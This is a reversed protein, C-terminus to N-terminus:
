GGISNAKATKFPVGLVTEIGQKISPSVSDLSTYGGFVLKEGGDNWIAFYYGKPLGEKAQDLRAVSWTWLNWSPDIKKPNITFNIDIAYIHKFGNSGEIIAQALSPAIVKKINMNQIPVTPIAQMNKFVPVAKVNELNIDALQIDLNSISSSDDEDEDEPDTYDGDEAEEESDEAEEESDVKALLAVGIVAVPILLLLPNM